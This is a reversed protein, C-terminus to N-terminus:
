FAICLLRADNNIDCNDFGFTIWLDDSVHPAGTGGANASSGDQWGACTAEAGGGFTRRVTGDPKSGSWWADVVTPLVGAAALNVNISGVLLRSFNSALVTGSASEIPLSSPVRYNAEYNALQDTASVTLFARVQVLGGPRAKSAQCLTDAGARGGLNGNRTDGEAFLVIRSRLFLAAPVGGLKVANVNALDALRAYTTLDINSVNVALTTLSANVTALAAADASVAAKLAAVSANTATLSAAQDSKIAAITTNVLALEQGCSCQQAAISTSAKLAAIDALLPQMNATLATLTANLSELKARLATSTSSEQALAAQTSSAQSAIATVKPDLAGLGSSLKQELAALGSSLTSNM